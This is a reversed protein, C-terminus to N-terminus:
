QVYWNIFLCSLSHIAEFLCFEMNCPEFSIRVALSGEGEM